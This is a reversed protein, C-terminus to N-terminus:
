TELEFLPFKNEYTHRMVYRYGIEAHREREKENELYYEVKEALDKITEYIILGGDKFEHELYKNHNSLQFGRAALVEFTRYNCGWVSQENQINVCIKSRNYLMNAENASISENLFYKRYNLFFYKMWRGPKSRFIYTGYIKINLEPFLKVLEELVEARYEDISGVFSIDIDKNTENIPFYRETSVPTGFFVSKVGLEQLKDKDTEEFLLVKDYYRLLSYDSVTRRISDQLLLIIPINRSRVYKLTDEHVRNGKVVVVEWPNHESVLSIINKNFEEVSNRDARRSFRSGNFVYDSFYVEYGNKEFLLGINETYDHFRPGVVLVSKAM